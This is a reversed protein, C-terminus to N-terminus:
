GTASGMVMELGFPRLIKKVGWFAPWTMTRVSDGYFTNGPTLHKYCLMVM